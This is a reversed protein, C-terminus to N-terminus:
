CLQANPSTPPRTFVWSSLQKGGTFRGAIGFLGGVRPVVGAPWVSLLDVSPSVGLRVCPWGGAPRRVM